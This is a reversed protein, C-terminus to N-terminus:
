ASVLCYRLLTGAQIGLVSRMSCLSLLLTATTGILLHVTAMLTYSLREIDYMHEVLRM